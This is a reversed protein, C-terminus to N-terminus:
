AIHYIKYRYMKLQEVEQAKEAEKQRSESLQQYLKRLRENLVKIQGPFCFPTEFVM